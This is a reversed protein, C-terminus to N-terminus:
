APEVLGYEGDARRYLVKGIGDAADTFLLFRRDIRDLEDRAEEVTLDRELHVAEPVVVIADEEGDASPPVAIAERALESGPPHLLGITGDGRRHVVVHEGTQASHFLNFEWDRVILEQVAELVYKPRDEVVSRHIIWGTPVHARGPENRLAVEADAVRRVQRRLRDAVEDAAMSPSAGTAHAALTRGNLLVSADASWVDRSKHTHPHRLTLRAGLIPEDTYRELQAIRERATEVEGPPADDPAHVEFDAIAMAEDM